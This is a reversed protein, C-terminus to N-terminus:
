MVHTCLGLLVPIIRIETRRGLKGCWEELQLPGCLYWSVVLRKSWGPFWLPCRLSSKLNVSLGFSKSSHGFDWFWMSWCISSKVSIPLLQEVTFNRLMFQFFGWQLVQQLTNISNWVEMLLVSLVVAAPWEAVLAQLLLVKPTFGWILGHPSPSCCGHALWVSFVCSVQAPLSPFPVGPCLHCMKVQPWPNILFLPTTLTKSGGRESLSAPGPASFSCGCSRGKWLCSLGLSQNLLIPYAFHSICLLFKQVRPYAERLFCM